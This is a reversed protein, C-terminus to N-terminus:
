PSLAVIAILVCPPGIASNHVRSRAATSFPWSIPECALRWKHWHGSVVVKQRLAYPRSSTSPERSSM